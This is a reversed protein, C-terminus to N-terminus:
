HRALLRCGGRAVELTGAAAFDITVSSRSPSPPGTSVGRKGVTRGGRRTGRLSDDDLERDDFAAVTRSGLGLDTIGLWVPVAPVLEVPREETLRSVDLTLRCSEFPRVREPALILSAGGRPLEAGGGARVTAPELTAADRGTSARDREVELASASLRGSLAPEFSPIVRAAVKADTRFLAALRCIFGDM